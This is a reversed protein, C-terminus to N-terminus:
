PATASARPSNIQAPPNHTVSELRTPSYSALGPSHASSVDVPGIGVRLPHYGIPTVM